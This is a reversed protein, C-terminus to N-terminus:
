PCGAAFQVVFEALDDGDVTRDGNLDALPDLANYLAMYDDWDAQESGVGNLNWDAICKPTGYFRLEAANWTATVPDKADSTNRLRVKWTAAGTEGWHRVSTFLADDYAPSDDDRAVTFVSQTLHQGARGQAYVPWIREIEIELPGIGPAGSTSVDMLLEVHELRMNATVIVPLPEEGGPGIQVGGPNLPVVIQREGLLPEWAPYGNTGTVFSVAEYADILGHGYEYSHNIGAQNTFWGTGPDITASTQVIAEMVDRWSLNPNAELMLAVVGAGAPCAFSTGVWCRYSSEHLCPDSSTRLAHTMWMDCGPATCFLSSGPESTDLRGEVGAILRVAGVSMTYRSGVFEDYDTRASLQPETASADNGAAVVYMTGLGGRGMAVGSALATHIEAPLAAHRQNSTIDFSLAQVDICSPAFGLAEEFEAWFSDPWPTDWIYIEAIKAGWAVGIVGLDNNGEAAIVGAMHTGHLFEAGCPPPPDPREESCESKYQNVLDEHQEWVGWDAVGVTVTEGSYGENWAECVRMSEIYWMRGFGPDPTGGMFPWTCQSNYNNDDCQECEETQAFSVSATAFVAACIVTLCGIM